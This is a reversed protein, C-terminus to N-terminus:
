FNKQSWMSVSARTMATLYEWIVLIISACNLQHAIIHGQVVCIHRLIHGHKFNFCMYNSLNVQFAAAWVLSLFLLFTLNLRHLIYIDCHIECLKRGYECVTPYSMGYRQQTYLSQNFCCLVPRWVPFVFTFVGFQILITRTFLLPFLPPMALFLFHSHSEFIYM